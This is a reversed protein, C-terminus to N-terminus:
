WADRRADSCWERVARRRPSPRRPTVAAARSAPRGRARVRGARRGAAVRRQRRRGRGRARGPGPRPGLRRARRRGARRRGAGAGVPSTWWGVEALAPDLASPMLVVLGAVRGSSRSRSRRPTGSPGATGPRRSSSGGTRARHVAVPGAALPGVGRGVPGRRRRRPRGRAVAAAASGRRAPRELPRRVGAPRPGRRTALLSGAWDDSRGRGSSAALRLTGEVTFGCREAVARSGWNGVGARWLVRQLGLAGFGWRCVAGVAEATYGHGRSGPATWYGVEASGDAIGMLAVSAHLRATTADLVAFSAATGAAWGPRRCRRSTPAPTSAPTRRPSPRGARAGRPGPLGRVGRRRGVARLPAPAPPRRDAAVPTWRRRGQWAAGGGTRRRERRRHPCLDTSDSSTRGHDQGLEEAGALALDDLPQPVDGVGHVGDLLVEERHRVGLQARLGVDEACRSSSPSVTSSM